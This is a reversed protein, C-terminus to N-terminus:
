TVVNLASHNAGFHKWLKQCTQLTSTTQSGFESFQNYKIKTADRQSFIIKSDSLFLIVDGILFNMNFM